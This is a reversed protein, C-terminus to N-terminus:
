LNLDGSTLNMGALERVKGISLHGQAYLSVANELKLDPVTLRASDLIGRPLQMSISDM